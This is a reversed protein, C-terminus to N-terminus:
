ETATSRLAHKCLGTVTTRKSNDAACHLVHHASNSEHAKKRKGPILFIVHLNLSSIILLYETESITAVL